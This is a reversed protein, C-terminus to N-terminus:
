DKHNRITSLDIQDGIKIGHAKFTGLPVELAYLLHDSKSQIGNLDRPYLTYIEKLTGDPSFYGIDLPILTDKMWFAMKQPEEFIFLMGQNQPLSTRHMLGKARAEPTSVIEVLFEHSGLHISTLSAKSDTQVGDSCGLFFVILLSFISLIQIRYAM